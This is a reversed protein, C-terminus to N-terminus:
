ASASLNSQAEATLREIESHPIRIEGLRVHALQGAAVMRYVTDTALGTATAFERVSWFLRPVDAAKAIGKARTDGQATM